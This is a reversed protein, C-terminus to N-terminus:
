IYPTGDGETKKTYRFTYTQTSFVFENSLFSMQGWETFKRKHNNQVHYSALEPPNKGKKKGVLPQRWKFCKRLSRCKLKSKTPCSVCIILRCSRYSLRKCCSIRFAERLFVLGIRNFRSLSYTLLSQNQHQTTMQKAIRYKLTGSVSTSSSWIFMFFCLHIPKTYGMHQLIKLTFKFDLFLQIKLTMVIYLHNYVMTM